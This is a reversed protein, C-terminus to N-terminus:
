KGPRSHPTSLDFIEVAGDEAILAARRGHESLTVQDVQGIRTTARALEQGSEIHWLVLRGVTQDRPVEDPASQRRIV